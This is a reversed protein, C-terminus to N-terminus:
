PDTKDAGSGPMHQTTVGNLISYSRLSALRKTLSHVHGM